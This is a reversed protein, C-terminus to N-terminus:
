DWRSVQGLWTILDELLLGRENPEDDNGLGTRVLEESVLYRLAEREEPTLLRTGITEVLSRSRRGHTEVVERLLALREDNNRTM